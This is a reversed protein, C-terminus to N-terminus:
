VQAPPKRLRAIIEEVTPPQGSRACGPTSPKRATVPTPEAPALAKREAQPAAKELQPAPATQGPKTVSEFLHALVRNQEAASRKLEHSAESLGQIASTHSSLHQAYLEIAAAFKELAKETSNM